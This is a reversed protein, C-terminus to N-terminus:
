KRVEAIEANIEDLTMESIGKKEAIKSARKMALVGKNVNIDELKMSFPIGKEKVKRSMCIRFYTPLDIGLHSCIQAAEERETEDVRFQILTNAM